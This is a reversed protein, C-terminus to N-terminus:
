SRCTAWCLSAIWFTTCFALLCSLAVVWGAAAGGVFGSDDYGASVFASSFRRRSSSARSSFSAGTKGDAIPAASPVTASVGTWTRILGDEVALLAAPQLQGLPQDPAFM